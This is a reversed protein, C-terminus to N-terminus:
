HKVLKGVGAADFLLGAVDFVVMSADPPQDAQNGLFMFAPDLSAHFLTEVEEYKKVSGELRALGVGLSLALGVGSVFSLGMAVTEISALVMERALLDDNARELANARVGAVGHRENELQHLLARDFFFPLKWVGLKSADEIATTMAEASPAIGRERDEKSILPIVPEQTTKGLDELAEQVEEIAKLIHRMVGNKGIGMKRTLPHIVIMVPHAKAHRRVETLYKLTATMARDSAQGADKQLEKIAGPADPSISAAVAVPLISAAVAVGKLLSEQSDLNDKEWFRRTKQLELLASILSELRTSKRPDNNTAAFAEAVDGADKFWTGIISRDAIYDNIIEELRDESQLLHMDLNQNAIQETTRLSLWLAKRHALWDDEIAFLLPLIMEFAVEDPKEDDRNFSKRKWESDSSDAIPIIWGDDKDVRMQLALKTDAAEPDTIALPVYTAALVKRLMQLQKPLPRKFTDSFRLEIEPYSEVLTSYSSILEESFPALEALSITRSRSREEDM